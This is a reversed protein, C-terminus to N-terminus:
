KSKDPWFGKIPLYKDIDADSPQVAVDFGGNCSAPLPNKALDRSITMTPWYPATEFDSPMVGPDNFKKTMHGIWMDVRNDDSTKKSNTCYNAIGIRVKVSKACSTPVFSVGSVRFPILGMLTTDLNGDTFQFGRVSGADDVLEKQNNFVSKDQIGAPSLGILGGAPTATSGHGVAGSVVTSLDIADGDKGDAPNIKYAVSDTANPFVVSQAVVPLPTTDGEAAACGHGITFATYLTKGETASDKVGTHASAIQAAGCLMAVTACLSLKKINKQQFM